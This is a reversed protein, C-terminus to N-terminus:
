ANNADVIEAGAFAEPAAERIASVALAFRDNWAYRDIAEQLSMDLQSAVAQLDEMEADSIASDTEPSGQQGVAAFTLALAVLLGLGIVVAIRRM